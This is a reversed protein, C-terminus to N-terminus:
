SKFTWANVKFQERFQDRYKQYLSEIVMYRFIVDIFVCILIVTSILKKAESAETDNEKYSYHQKSEFISWNNRSDTSYIFGVWLLAYAYCILAVIRSPQVKKHYKKFFIIQNSWVQKNKLSNTHNTHYVVTWQWCSFCIKQKQFNLSYSCLSM